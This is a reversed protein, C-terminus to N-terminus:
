NIRFKKCIEYYNDPNMYYKNEKPILAKIHSNNVMAYVCIKTNNNKNYYIDTIEYNENLIIINFGTIYTFAEIDKETGKRNKNYTQSINKLNEEILKKM